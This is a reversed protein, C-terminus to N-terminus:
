SYNMIDPPQVWVYEEVYSCGDTSQTTCSAACSYVAIMSWDPSLKDLPDVNLNNLLQPMVQFEFKRPGQCHQCPPISEDSPIGKSSPCIPKVGPEFCYRLIQSPELSIRQAFSAFDRQELPMNKEIDEVVDSPLEEETYQQSVEAYKKIEAEKDIITSENPEPEVVMEYEPFLATEFDPSGEVKSNAERELVNWPDIARVAQEVAPPAEDHESPPDYGYLSNSRSLQCRFAKVSGSVSHIAPGDQSVFLFVTRHFADPNEDVPAYVQLLFKMIEGTKPCTLMEITPLHIPDLWAPRGGVKSPFRHRLLDTRKLPPEIFGLLWKSTIEECRLDDDSSFEEMNKEQM